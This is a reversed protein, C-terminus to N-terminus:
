PNPCAFGETKGQICAMMLMKADHVRRRVTAPSAVKLLRQIEQDNFGRLALKFTDRALDSLADLCEHVLRSQEVAETEEDPAAGPDPAQEVPDIAPSNGDVDHSTPTFFLERARSDKHLATLLKNHAAQYLYGLLADDFRGADADAEFHGQHQVVILMIADSCADELMGENAYPRYRGGLRFVRQRLASYLSAFRKTNCRLDDLQERTRPLM